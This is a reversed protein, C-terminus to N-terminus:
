ATPEGPEAEAAPTAEPEAPPEPEATAVTAAAEPAPEPEPKAPAEAKVVLFRLVDEALRLGAELDVVKSPESQFNGVLYTGETFNQGAKRIPYALRRTGWTDEHLLSGGRDTVMSKIREWSSRTDEQTLMPNLVVILEYQQM